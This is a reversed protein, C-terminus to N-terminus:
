KHRLARLGSERPRATESGFTGKRRMSPQLLFDSGLTNRLSRSRPTYRETRRSERRVNYAHDRKRNRGGVGQADPDAARERRRFGAYFNGTHATNGRRSKAHSSARSPGRLLADTAPKCDQRTQSSGPSRNSRISKRVDRGRVSVRTRR